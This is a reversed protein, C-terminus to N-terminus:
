NQREALVELIATAATQYGRENYHKGPRPFMRTPDDHAAFVEHIDITTIGMSRVRSVVAQRIADKGSGIASGGYYRKWGPLYVFILEGGWRNIEAKGEALVKELEPIMEKERSGLAIGLRTRLYRLSMVTHLRKWWASHLGGAQERFEDTRSIMVKDIIEQHRILNQTFGSQLYRRLRSFKMERRLNVLDNGEYFFWLVTRPKLPKGYEKLIGLQALPGTDGVGLNLTSHYKKRILSPIEDGPKVCIGEVFSDGVAILATAPLEWLGPPNNFGHRDSEFSQWVGAENCLVVQRKSINALPLTPVGDIEIVWRSEQGGIEEFGSPSVSPVVPVGQNMYDEVVQLKSRTDYSEGAEAAAIRPERFAKLALFTEVLLVAAGTSLLLLSFNLRIRGPLFTMALFTLAPVACFVLALIPHPPSGYKLILVALLAFYLSCGVFILNAVHKLQV